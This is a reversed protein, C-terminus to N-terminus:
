GKLTSDKLILGSTGQQSVQATAQRLKALDGSMDIVAQDLIKEPDEASSVTCM